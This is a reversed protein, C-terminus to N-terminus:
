EKDNQVDGVLVEVDAANSLDGILSAAEDVASFVDDVSQDSVTNAATNRSVKKYNIPEISLALSRMEKVLVKFSEPTGAAPVNEDKVISEYT